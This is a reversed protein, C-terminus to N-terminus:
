LRVASESEPVPSRLEDRPAPVPMASPRHGTADDDLNLHPLVRDLWAPLWWNARGM